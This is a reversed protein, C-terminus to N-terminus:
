HSRRQRCYVLTANCTTPCRLSPVLNGIPQHSTPAELCILLHDLSNILTMTGYSPSRRLRRYWRDIILSSKSSEKWRHLFLRFYDAMMMQGGLPEEAGVAVIPKHKRMTDFGKPFGQDGRWQVEKEIVNFM